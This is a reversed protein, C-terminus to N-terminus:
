GPSRAIRFAANVADPAMVAKVHWGDPRWDAEGDDRFEPEGLLRCGADVFRGFLNGAAYKGDIVRIELREIRGNDTVVACGTGWRRDPDLYGHRCPYIEVSGDFCIVRPDNAEWCQGGGQAGRLWRRWLPVKGLGARSLDEPRLPDDLCLEVGNVTVQLSV